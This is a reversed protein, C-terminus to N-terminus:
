IITWTNGQTFKRNCGNLAMSGTGVILGLKTHKDTNHPHTHGQRWSKISSSHQSICHFGLHFLLQETITRIQSFFPNSAHICLQKKDISLITSECPKLLTFHMCVHFYMIIFSVGLLDRLYVRACKCCCPFIARCVELHRNSGTLERRDMWCSVKPNEWLREGGKGSAVSM